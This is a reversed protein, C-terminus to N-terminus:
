PTQAPPQSLRTVELSTTLAARVVTAVPSERVARTWLRHLALEAVGGETVLHAAVSIHLARGGPDCDVHGAATFGLLEIGASSALRLCTRMLCAAVSMALLDEPPVSSDEGVSLLCGASTTATGVRGEDWVLEVM